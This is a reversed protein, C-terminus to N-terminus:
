ERTMKLMLKGWLFDLKQLMFKLIERIQHKPLYYYKTHMFIDVKLHLRKAVDTVTFFNPILTPSQFYNKKPM